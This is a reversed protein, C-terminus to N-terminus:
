SDEKLHSSITRRYQEYPLLFYINSKLLFIIDIQVQFCRYEPMITLHINLKYRAIFNKQTLFYRKNNTM